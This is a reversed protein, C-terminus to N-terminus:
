GRKGTPRHRRFTLALELQADIVHLLAKFEDDALERLEDRGRYLNVFERERGAQALFQGIGLNRLVKALGPQTSHTMQLVFPIPDNRALVAALRLIIELPIAAEGAEYKELISTDRLAILKALREVSLGATERLDRVTAGARALAAPTGSSGLLPRALQGVFEIGPWARGIVNGAMGGIDKALGTLVGRKSPALAKKSDARPPKKRAPPKTTM